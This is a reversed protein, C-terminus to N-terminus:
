FVTRENELELRKDIQLMVFVYLICIVASLYHLVDHWDVGMSEWLCQQNLTRSEAPSWRVDAPLRYTSIFWWFIVCVTLLITTFCFLVVKWTDRKHLGNRRIDMVRNVCFFIFYLTLDWQLIRRTVIPTDFRTKWFCGYATWFLLNLMSAYLYANIMKQRAPLVTLQIFSQRSQPQRQETATTNEETSSLLSVQSGSNTEDLVRDDDDHEPSVSSDGQGDVVVGFSPNVLAETEEGSTTQDARVVASSWRQSESESPIDPYAPDATARSCKNIWKIGHYHTFICSYVFFVLFILTISVNHVVSNDWTSDAIIFIMLLFTFSGVYHHHNENRENRMGVLLFKAELLILIMSVTFLHYSHKQPCYNMITWFVGTLMICSNLPFFRRPCKAVYTLLMSILSLVVISSASLMSNFAKFWGIPIACEYNHNCTDTDKALHSDYHRLIVILAVPLISFIRSLSLNWVGGDINQDLPNDDNGKVFVFFGILGVSFLAVIYTVIIFILPVTSPRFPKIEATINKERSQNEYDDFNTQYGNKTQCPTDIPLVSFIINLKDGFEQRKVIIFSKKTFTQHNYSDYLVVQGETDFVPCTAKQITVRGCLNDMASVRIAIMDVFEPFSFQYFVPESPSISVTRHEMHIFVQFVQQVTLDYTAPVSSSVTLWVPENNRYLYNEDECLTEALFYYRKSVGDYTQIRPIFTSLYSDGRMLVLSVPKNSCKDQSSLIVRVTSPETDNSPLIKYSNPVLKGKTTLNRYPKNFEIITPNPQGFCYPFQLLLLLLISLM